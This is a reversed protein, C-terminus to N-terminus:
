LERNVERGHDRSAWSNAEGRELRSCWPCFSRGPLWPASIRKIGNGVMRCDQHQVEGAKAAIVYTTGHM